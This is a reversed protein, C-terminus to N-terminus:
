GHGRYSPCLSQLAIPAIHRPCADKSYHSEPQSPNWPMPNSSPPDTPTPPAIEVCLPDPNPQDWCVCAARQASDFAGQGFWRVAGFFFTADSRCAWRSLTSTAGDSQTYRLQHSFLRDAADPELALIDAISVCEADSSSLLHPATFEHLAFYKEIRFPAIKM